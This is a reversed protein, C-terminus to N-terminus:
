REAAHGMVEQDCMLGLRPDQATPGSSPHTPGGDNVGQRHRAETGAVWTPLVVQEAGQLRSEGSDGVSVRHDTGVKRAAVRPDAHRRVLEVHHPGIGPRKGRQLDVPGLSARRDAKRRVPRDDQVQATELRPLVDQIEDVQQVTRYTSAGRM